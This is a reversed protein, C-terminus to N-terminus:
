SSAITESDMSDFDKKTEIREAFFAFVIIALIENM